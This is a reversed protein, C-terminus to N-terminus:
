FRGLQRQLLGHRERRLVFKGVRREPDDIVPLALVVIRDCFQRFREAEVWLARRRVIIEPDRRALLAPLFRRFFFHEVRDRRIGIVRIRM